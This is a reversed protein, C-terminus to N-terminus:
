LLLLSLIDPIQYVSGGIHGPLKRNYYDNINSPSEPLCNRTMMRLVTLVRFVHTLSCFSLSRLFFRNKSAGFRDCCSRFSPPSSSSSLSSSSSPSPSSSSSSVWNPNRDDARKNFVATVLARLKTTTIPSGSAKHETPFHLYNGTGIESFNNVM